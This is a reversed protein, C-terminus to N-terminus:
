PGVKQFRFITEKAIWEQDMLVLIQLQPTTIDMTISIILLRHFEQM